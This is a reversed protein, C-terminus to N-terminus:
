RHVRRTHGVWRTRGGRSQQRQARELSHAAWDRLLEPGAPACSFEHGDSEGIEAHRGIENGRERCAADVLGEFDLGEGDGIRDGAAIYAAARRGTRALGDRESDRQEHADAAGFPVPGGRQHECRRTLEGRLDTVLQLRKGTRARTSHGRDVAADTVFGLEALKAAADVHEDGAGTAKSIQDALVRDIEAADLDHDDVFGIAHGVHAEKGFDAPQEVERRLRALRQQERRREVAGDLHQGAVVLVLRHMVFDLDGVDVVRVHVVHEPADLTRVAGLDGRMKQGRGPRGDHEAASPATGVPERRLERAVAHAGLRDVAASRLVLAVAGKSCELGATDVRKIAVSTAARPM